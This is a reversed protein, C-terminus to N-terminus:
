VDEEFTKGGEEEEEEKQYLKSPVILIGMHAPSHPIGQGILYRGISM